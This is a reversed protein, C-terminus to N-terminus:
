DGAPVVTYWIDGNEQVASVVRYGEAVFNDSYGAPETGTKSPDCNVFTGGYVTISGDTKDQKNLVWYKDAYKTNNYFFGGNIVIDGGNSFIVTNGNGNKDAGVTYTGGNIIVKGHNAAEVATNSSSNSTAESGGIVQGDGNITIVTGKGTAKITNFYKSKSRGSITKGNLDITVPKKSNIYLSSHNSDEPYDNFDIDDSLVVSNGKTLERKAEAADSTSVSSKMQYAAVADDGFPEKQIAYATFTLTVDEKLTGDENLMNSNELAASYTVTDDKLVSFEKEEADAAVERYYVNDYGDLPTWGADITYDVLGETKDDVVVYVYADVTNTVTVKPDKKQTTGPLINYEQSTTENLEVQVENTSFTNVVPDTEGKLYAYTGGGILTAAALTVALGTTLISKKSAKM